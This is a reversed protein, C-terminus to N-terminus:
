KRWPLGFGFSVAIGTVLKRGTNRGGVAQAVFLQYSRSGRGFGIGGEVIDQRERLSLFTFSADMLNTGALGQARRFTFSFAAPGAIKYIGASGFLEPPVPGNRM